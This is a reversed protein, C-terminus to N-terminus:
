VVIPLGRPRVLPDIAPIPPPVGGGDRPDMNVPTKKGVERDIDIPIEERVTDSKLFTEGSLKFPTAERELQPDVGLTELVLSVSFEVNVDSELIVDVEEIIESVRTLKKRRAVKDLGLALSPKQSQTKGQM